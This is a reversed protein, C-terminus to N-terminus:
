RPGRWTLWAPRERGRARLRRRVYGVALMLLVIGVALWLAWHATISRSVEPEMGNDTAPVLRAARDATTPGSWPSSGVEALGPGAGAHAALWDLLSLLTRMVM